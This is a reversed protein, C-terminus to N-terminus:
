YNEMNKEEEVKIKARYPDEQRWYKNGREQIEWKTLDLDIRLFMNSYM